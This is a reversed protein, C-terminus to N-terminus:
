FEKDWNSNSSKTKGSFNLGPEEHSKIFAEFNQPSAGARDIDKKFSQVKPVYPAQIQRNILKEWDLGKFWANKILTEHNGRLAPNKNLLKEILSVCTFKKTSSPFVLKSELVLNYVKFPDNEGEGFPVVNCVFEYLIIGISWLDAELGYGTGKIIEPAMYHATGVVTYTREKIINATGFDILKAYGYEDVMINEPKLDRYIINREHLHELILALCAIYFMSKEDNMVDIERIVDFLDMGQVLEMLFYLRTDDKFTKVLKVIFPHDIQMMIRRELILNKAIDFQMIKARHVTKLAYSMKTNFNHALFVNGFMGQGLQKVLTLDQIAVKDNQLEIRKMINKRLGKDILNLFNDKSLVWCIAGRSQVTATRAENFLIAREGFFDHRNIIRLSVNDKFVEVRGKKIIYFADGIDGQSFIIDGDSYEIIDLQSILNELNSTPLNRFIQVRKLIEIIENNRITTKLDSGLIKELKSRTIIALDSQTKSVWEEEFPSDNDNYIDEDGICSFVNLTQYESVLSGKLIFIIKQGKLSNAKIVTDNEYVAKIKMADVCAEIQKKTLKSLIASKEMSMRQSNKYIVNQLETGLVNVLDDSKLSLLSVKDVAEVTATRKTKYLLAQEGFFNGENLKRVEVGAISCIVMGKKIIYLLDGADGERVIKEGNLFEHSVLLPLLLDKQQQTLRYFVPIKDLFLKNEQMKADNVMKVASRFSDRSLVWFMAKDKTKITATRPSDHLLALEGFYGGKTLTAKIENNIFVEVTGTYILYFNQGPTGESIVVQKPDYIYLKFENVLNLINDKSLSNFIFHSSLVRLIEAREQPTQKKEQIFANEGETIGDTPKLRPDAIPEKKKIETRKNVVLNPEKPKELTNEATLPKKKPSPEPMPTPEKNKKSSFCGM